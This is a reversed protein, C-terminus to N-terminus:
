ECFPNRTGVIPVLSRRSSTSYSGSPSSEGQVDHQHVSRLTGEPTGVALGIANGGLALGAVRRLKALIALQLDGAGEASESSIDEEKLMHRLFFLHTKHAGGPTKGEQPIGNQKLLELFQEVWGEIGMGIAPNEEGYFTRWLEACM